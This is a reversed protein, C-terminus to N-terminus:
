KDSCSTKIPINSYMRVIASIIFLVPGIQRGLKEYYALGPCTFLVLM